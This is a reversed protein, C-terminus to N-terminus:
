LNPNFVPVVMGILSNKLCICDKDGGEQNKFGFAIVAHVAAWQM